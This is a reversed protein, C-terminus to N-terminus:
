WAHVTLRVQRELSRSDAWKEINAVPATHVVVIRTASLNACVELKRAMGYADCKSCPARLDLAGVDADVQLAVGAERCWGVIDSGLAATTTAHPLGWSNLSADEIAHPPRLWAMGGIGSAAASLNAEFPRRRPGFHRGEQIQDLFEVNTNVVLAKDLM